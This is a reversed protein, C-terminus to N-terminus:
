SLADVCEACLGPHALDTGVDARWRWCRECKVGEAPRVAVRFGEESDVPEESWADDPGRVHVASVIFAEELDGALAALVSHAASDEAAIEVQAALSSGITKEERLRELERTVAQRAALVIDWQAERGADRREPDPPAFELLHVSEEDGREATARWVEEATFPLIPAVLRTLADLAAHLVTQASRREASGAPRTYLRVKIGDLYIGSLRVVCYQVLHQYVHHFAYEEYSGRIEDSVRELDALAWRDFPLLDDVAVAHRAPDFDSLNGLLFRFTNRIKRYAEAVQDVADWSFRSDRTMENAAAWLRLIDAGRQEVV